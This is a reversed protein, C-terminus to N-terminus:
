IVHCHCAKKTGELCDILNSFIKRVDRNQGPYALDRASKLSPLCFGPNTFVRYFFIFSQRESSGKLKGFHEVYDHWSNIFLYM